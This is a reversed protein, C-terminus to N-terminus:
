TVVQVYKCNRGNNLWSLMKAKFATISYVFCGNSYNTQTWHRSLRKLLLLQNKSM